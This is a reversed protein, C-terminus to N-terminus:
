LAIRFMLSVDANSGSPNIVEIVSAGQPLDIPRPTSTASLYTSGVVNGFWDYFRVTVSLPAPFAAQDISALTVETARLPIAALKTSLKPVTGMIITRRPIATIRAGEHGISCLVELDIAGAPLPDPPENVISIQLSDCLVPFAMSGAVLDLDAVYETTAGLSWRLRVSLWQPVPIAVIGVIPSPAIAPSKLAKTALEVNVCWVRGHMPFSPMNLIALEGRTNAPITTKRGVTIPHPQSVGSSAADGSVYGLEALLRAIIGHSSM